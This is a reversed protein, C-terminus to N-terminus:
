SCRHQYESLLLRDVTKLLKDSALIKDLRSTTITQRHHSTGSSGWALAVDSELSWHDNRSQQRPVKRPVGTPTQFGTGDGFNVLDLTIEVISAHPRGYAEDQSYDEWGQMLNEPITFVHTEGPKIPIDDPRLPASFHILDSRGYNM